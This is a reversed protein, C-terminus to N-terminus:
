DAHSSIRGVGSHVHVECVPYETHSPRDSTGQQRGTSSSARNVADIYFERQKSALIASWEPKMQRELRLRETLLLGTWSSPRDAADPQTSRHLEEGHGRYGEGCVDIIVGAHQKHLAQSGIM